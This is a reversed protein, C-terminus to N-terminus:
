YEKEFVTQGTMKQFAELDEQTRIVMVEQFKGTSLDKLGAVQEGTCISCHLVPKQTAADYQLKEIKKIIKRGFM